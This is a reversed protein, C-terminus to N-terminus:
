HLDPLHTWSSMCPFALQLSLRSVTFLFRVGKDLDLGLYSVCSLFTPPCFLQRCKCYWLVFYHVDFVHCHNGIPPPFLVPSHRYFLITSYEGTCFEPSTDSPRQGVLRTDNGRGRLDESSFSVGAAWGKPRCLVLTSRLQFTIILYVTVLSNNGARSCIPLLSNYSCRPHFGHASSSSM